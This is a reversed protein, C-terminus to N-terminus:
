FYFPRFFEAGFGISVELTDGSPATVKRTLDLKPECQAIFTRVHKSDAIPMQEIFKVIEGKDPSGNLEVIQKTLKWTIKPVVRGQPYSDAMKEIEM